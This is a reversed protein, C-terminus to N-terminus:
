GPKRRLCTSYYISAVFTTVAGIVQLAPWSWIEELIVATLVMLLVVKVNGLIATGQPSLMRLAHFLAINYMVALLSSGLLYGLVVRPSAELDRCFTGFELALAIPIITAFSIPGTYFTMQFADLKAHSAMLRGALTIQLCQTVTSAASILVGFPSSHTSQMGQQVTLAVSYAIVMITLLEHIPPVIGDIAAAIAAVVVPAMSRVVQNMSLEIFVLSYNNLAIQSGNLVAILCLAKWRNSLHATLTSSYDKDLVMVPTLASCGLQMHTATVILPFRMGGLPGLAWRNLLSLASNLVLFIVIIAIQAILLSRSKGSPSRDEKSFLQPMRFPIGCRRALLALFLSTPGAIFLASVYLVGHGTGDYLRGDRSKDKGMSTSGHLRKATPAADRRSAHAPQSRQSACRLFALTTRFHADSRLVDSSNRSSANHLQRLAEVEQKSRRRMAEKELANQASGDPVAIVQVQSNMKSCRSFAVGFVYEARSAYYRNTVVYIRLSSNRKPSSGAPERSRTLNRVLDHCMIAEDVLSLAPMGPSLLIGLPLGFSVLLDRCLEWHSTRLRPIGLHNEADIGGSTLVRVERGARTLNAVLQTVTRAREVVDADLRGLKDNTGALQVVLSVGPAGDAHAQGIRTIALLLWQWRRM